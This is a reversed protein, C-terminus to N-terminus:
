FKKSFQIIKLGVTYVGIADNKWFMAMIGNRHRLWSFILNKDFFQQFVVQMGFKTNVCNGTWFNTLPAYKGGEGGLLILQDLVRHLSANIIKEKKHNLDWQHYSKQSGWHEKNQSVQHQWAGLLTM